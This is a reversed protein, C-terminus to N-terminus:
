NRDWYDLSNAIEGNHQQSAHADLWLVNLGGSHRTAINANFSAPAWPPYYLMYQQFSDSANHNDAIFITESPRKIQVMKYYTTGNGLFTNNHAYGSNWRHDSDNGSANNVKEGDYGATNDRNPYSQTSPCVLIKHSNNYPYLDEWWFTKDVTAPRNSNPIYSEYDNTYMGLSLGLQKLNAICSIAKAKNRAQNLAPLLMGALIAIIAIVVLLEILTFKKQIKM